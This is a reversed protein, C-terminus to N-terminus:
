LALNCVLNITACIVDTTSWKDLQMPIAAKWNFIMKTVVSFMMCVSLTIGIYNYMVFTDINGNVHKDLLLRERELTEGLSTPNM